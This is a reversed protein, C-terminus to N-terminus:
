LRQCIIHVLADDLNPPLEAAVMGNRLRQALIDSLDLAQFLSFGEVASHGVIEVQQQGDRREGTKHLVFVAGSIQRDERLKQIRKLIVVAVGDYSKPVPLVQSKVQEIAEKAQQMVSSDVFVFIFVLRKWLTINLDHRNM